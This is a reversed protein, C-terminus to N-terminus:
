SGSPGLRGIEDSNIVTDGPAGRAVRWSWWLLPLQLPARVWATVPGAFAGHTGPIHGEVAHQLNAVWVVAFTAFAMAGGARATSRRALLAASGLEAATSAYNWLAPDGPLWKPILAEFTPRAALHLVGMGGLLAALGLRTRRISPRETM